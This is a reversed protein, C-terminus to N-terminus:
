GFLGLPRVLTRDKIRQWREWLGREKMMKRHLKVVGKYRAPLEKVQWPTLVPVVEAVDFEYRQGAGEGRVAYVVLGELVLRDLAGAQGPHSKTAPRGLIAIRGGEGMADAIRALAPWRGDGRQRVLLQCRILLQWLDFATAGLYPRWFLWVYLDDAVALPDAAVRAATVAPAHRTKANM